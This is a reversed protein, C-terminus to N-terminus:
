ALSYPYTAYSSVHLLYLVRSHALGCTLLHTLGTSVQRFLNWCGEIYGGGVASGGKPMARVAWSVMFVLGHKGPPVTAVEVFDLPQRVGYPNRQLRLRTGRPLPVASLPLALPMGVTGRVNVFGMFCGEGDSPDAQVTVVASKYFPIPFTNFWGGVPASKGCLGGAAYEFDHAVREPFATGCMFGPQFSISPTTEGDIYYSVWMRDIKYQTGTAWFHHLVAHGSDPAITENIIVSPARSSGCVPVGPIANGFTPGLTAAAM